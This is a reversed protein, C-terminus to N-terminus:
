SGREHSGVLMHKKGHGHRKMKRRPKPSFVYDCTVVVNNNGTPIKKCTTGSPCSTLVYSGDVCQAFQGNVCDVTGPACSGSPSGVSSTAAEVVNVTSEQPTTEVITRATLNPWCPLYQTVRIKVLNAPGEDATGLVSGQTVTQLTTALPATPRAVLVASQSPTAGSIAVSQQGSTATHSTSSVSGGAAAVLANKASQAYHVGDSDVNAFARVADRTTLYPLCVLPSM